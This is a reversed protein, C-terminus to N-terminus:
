RRAGDCKGNYITNKKLIIPPRGSIIDIVHEQALIGYHTWGEGAGGDQEARRGNTIYPLQDLLRSQLFVEFYRGTKIEDGRQFFTKKRTQYLIYADFVIEYTCGQDPIVRCYVGMDHKEEKVVALALLIHLAQDSTEYLELIFPAATSQDFDRGFEIM